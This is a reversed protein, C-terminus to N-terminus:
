ERAMLKQKKPKKQSIKKKQAVKEEPKPVIQEKETPIMEMHCPSSMYPNIRGHARYMSCRMKPAKNVLIHEIVVSNVDLGKLEANSEANKLMHLLFEAIKKPWRGQTWGWQKAQACRGVGGNYRRFPVCQKQLTVGKLCKTAKRIHMGKIAQATKRTNKFHVRLNSGRSKCSKMPNEPDLWYRVM